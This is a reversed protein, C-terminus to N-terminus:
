SVIHNLFEFYDNAEEHINAEKTAKVAIWTSEYDLIILPL